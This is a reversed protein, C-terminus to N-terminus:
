KIKPEFVIKLMFEAKKKENRSLNIVNILLFTCLNIIDSNSRKARKLIEKVYFKNYQNEQLAEYYWDIAQKLDNKNEFSQLNTIRGNILALTTATNIKFKRNDSDYYAKKAYDRALKLDVLSNRKLFIISKARQLWFHNDDFLIDELKEYLNLILGAQGKQQDSFIQNLNDFTIIKKHLTGYVKNNILIKILEAVNRTVKNNGFYKKYENLIKFLWSASNSAIKYGSHQHLEIDSTNQHEVFPSLKDAYDDVESKRIDLINFLISYVKGDTSLIVTLIFEKDTLSGVDFPIKEDYADFARFCNDLLSLKSDLEILGVASLKYNIKNREKFSFKDSLNFHNDNTLMSAASNVLNDSVNVVLVINTNNIRFEDIMKEMQSVNDIDVSNTDFILYSNELKKLDTIESASFSVNSPFFYVDKDQLQKALTKALFTKGSFRKGSIVTFVEDRIKKRIPAILEREESFFPLACESSKIGVVDLFYEKNENFEKDCIIIEQNKFEEFPKEELFRITDYIEFLFNYFTSYDDVLLVTTIGFDELRSKRLGKPEQGTVYIKLAKDDINETTTSIAYKLDLEDDLSCGIFLMNRSSYDSQFYSLIYKNRELSKIYQEQSFIINPLEDYQLEELVDGHMKFVVNLEKVFSSLKKYPIIPKFISNNEIADDINLTYIYPWKIKLFIKKDEGLVVETFLNILVRKYQDKPVRKFFENAIESFKYGDEKFDNETIEPYNVCIKEIMVKKFDDGNPVNGLRAKEGRTFGSGIIPILNKRSLAVKFFDKLDNQGKFQIIDM